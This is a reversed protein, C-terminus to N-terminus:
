SQNDYIRIWKTIGNIEIRIAGAKTSDETTDTSITRSGDSNATGVFNIFADDIDDQEVTLVPIAGSASNQNIHTTAAATATGIGVNGSTDIMMRLAGNTVDWFYLEDNINGQVQMRYSQADNELTVGSNGNTYTNSVRLVADSENYIMDCSYSPTATGIGIHGTDGEVVLKSTDITFDDGAASSLAVNYVGGSGVTLSRGAYIATTGLDISTGTAVGLEPTVLTPSTNVVFTTGTGTQSAISTANGSSTIPGTLNANTTVNGATFGSATGTMNTGVLASPTGCDPTTLTPSTAMVFTTGTGTQSAVATANGTSTIPGTLNANTAVTAANGVSTVGGTLNANTTVTGATLGAATGTCNTLVGSTPTGLLPTILTPSTNFVSVGTGTENSLVGLLQASTTAAFQSLPNAVVADGGGSITQWSSSNDGDERLFKTGGTEGTSLVEIGEVAGSSFGSGPDIKSSLISDAHVTTITLTLIALLVYIKKM